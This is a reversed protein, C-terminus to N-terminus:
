ADVPLQGASITSSSYVDLLRGGACEDARKDFAARKFEQQGARGPFRAMQQALAAIDKENGSFSFARRVPAPRLPPDGTGHDALVTRKLKGPRNRM